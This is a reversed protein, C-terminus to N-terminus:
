SGGGSALFSPWGEIVSPPALFFGGQGGSRLYPDSEMTSWRAWRSWRRSISILFMRVARRTSSGELRGGHEDFKEAADAIVTAERHRRATWRAAVELVPPGGPRPRVIVCTDDLNIGRELRRDSATPYFTYKPNDQQTHQRTSVLGARQCFSVHMEEEASTTSPWCERAAQHVAHMEGAALVANMDGVLRFSDGPKLAAQAKKVTLLLDELFLRKEEPREMTRGANTTYVNLTHHNRGDPGHWCLGVVRGERASATWRAAVELVPPKLM